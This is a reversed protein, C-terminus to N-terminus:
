REAPTTSVHVVIGPRKAGGDRIEARRRVREQAVRLGTIVNRIDNGVQPVVLGPTRQMEARGGVLHVAGVVIRGVAACALGVRGPTIGHGTSELELIERRAVAVAQLHQPGPGM